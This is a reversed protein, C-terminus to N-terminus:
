CVLAAKLTENETCVRARVCQLRALTARMQDCRAESAQVCVSAKKQVAELLQQNVKQDAM